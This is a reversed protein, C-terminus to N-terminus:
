RLPQTALAQEAEVGSDCMAAAYDPNILSALLKKRYVIRRLTRKLMRNNRRLASIEQQQKNYIDLLGGM